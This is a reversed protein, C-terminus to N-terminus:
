RKTSNIASQPPKDQYLFLCSIYSWSKPLFFINPSSAFRWRTQKSESNRPPVWLLTHPIPLSTNRPRYSTGLPHGSYKSHSEKGQQPGTAWLLAGGLGVAFPETDWQMSIAKNGTEGTYKLPTAALCPSGTGQLGPARVFTPFTM